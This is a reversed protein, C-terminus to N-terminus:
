HRLPTGTLRYGKKKREKYDKQMEQVIIGRNNM